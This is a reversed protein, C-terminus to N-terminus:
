EVFMSLRDVVFNTLNDGDASDKDFSGARLIGGAGFQRNRGASIIQYGSPQFYQGPESQYPSFDSGVLSQCDRASYGNKKGHSSFYAYPREGWPDIFSPFGNAHVSRLRSTPFEFFPRGRSKDAPNRPHRSFGSPAGEEIIGGLFFVLCQDGELLVAPSNKGDGDIEGNGNWDIGEDPTKGDRFAPGDATRVRLQPWVQKLYNLSEKELPDNLDYDMKERLIIRSPIFAIVKDREFASIASGLQGIEFSCTISEPEPEPRRERPFGKM